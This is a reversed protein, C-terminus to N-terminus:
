FKKSGMLPSGSLSLNNAANLRFFTSLAGLRSIKISSLCISFNKPLYAPLESAIPPSGAFPSTLSLILGINGFSKISRQLIIPCSAM